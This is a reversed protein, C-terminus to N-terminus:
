FPISDDGVIKRHDEFALEIAWKARDAINDPVMLPNMEIAIEDLEMLNSELADKAEDSQLWTVLHEPLDIEIKMRCNYM